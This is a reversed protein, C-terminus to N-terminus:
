SKIDVFLQDLASQSDILIGENKDLQAVGVNLQERLSALKLENVWDEHTEMFRLAERIVESANNYLGSEVKAKVRHELEPTLSVHM